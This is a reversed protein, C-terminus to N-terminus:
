LIIRMQESLEENTANFRAYKEWIKIMKKKKKQLIARLIVAFYVEATKEQGNRWNM